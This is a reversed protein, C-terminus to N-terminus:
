PMQKKVVLEDYGSLSCKEKIFKVHRYELLTIEATTYILNGDKVHGGVTKGDGDSIAMHIHTHKKSVMGSLSVIEFHGHWQSTESENALRLSADTLSGLGTVISAAEIGNSEAYAQLARYLDEGPKLRLVHPVPMRWAQFLSLAGAALLLVAFTACFLPHDTKRM